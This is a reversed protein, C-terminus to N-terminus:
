VMGGFIGGVIFGCVWPGVRTWIGSQGGLAVGILVVGPGPCFGCLGWGIGFLVAGFVLRTSFAHRWNSPPHPILWTPCLAPQTGSRRVYEGLWNKWILLQPLIGGLIVSVLSPDWNGMQIASPLLNMFNLIKSPRLMGSLSLGLAFHFSFAAMQRAFREGLFTKFLLSIYQFVIIPTQLLLILWWSPIGPETEPELKLDFPTLRGVLLHTAIGVPVFIGSAILSRSSLRSVGCLMHGSTCGNALKSGLGVLLGAIALGIVQQWDVIGTHIDVLQVHLRSELGSRYCGVVFGGVVLGIISVLALQEPDPNVKQPHPQHTDISRTLIARFGYGFSSVVRHAFGSVGLVRGNLLMLGTAATSMMVAGIFTHIPTFPM